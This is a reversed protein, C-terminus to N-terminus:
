VKPDSDIDLKIGKGKKQRGKKDLTKEEVVEQSEQAEQTEQAEQAEQAEQVDETEQSEQTEQVDKAEESEQVDQTEQSDTTNTTKVLDNYKSNLNKLDDSLKEFESKFFDTEQKQQLLSAQLTLVLTNMKELQKDINYKSRNLQEINKKNDTYIEMTQKTISEKLNEIDLSNSMSNPEVMSIKKEIDFLKKDHEMLLGGISVPGRSELIQQNKEPVLTNSKTEPIVGRRRRAAALGASGSM